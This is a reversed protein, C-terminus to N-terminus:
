GNKKLAKNLQAALIDCRDKCKLRLNVHKTVDDSRSIVLAKLRAIEESQSNNDMEKMEKSLAENRNSAREENDKLEKNLAKLLRNDSALSYSKAQLEEAKEKMSDFRRCALDTEKKGDLWKYRYYFALVVLTLQILISIIDFVSM